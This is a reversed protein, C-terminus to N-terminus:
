EKYYDSMSNSSSNLLEKMLLLVDKNANDKKLVKDIGENLSDKVESWEKNDEKYSFLDSLKAM